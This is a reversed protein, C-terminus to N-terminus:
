FKKFIKLRKSEEFKQCFRNTLKERKKSNCTIKMIRPKKSNHEVVKGNRTYGTYAEQNMRNEKYDKNEM